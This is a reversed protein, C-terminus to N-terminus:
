IVEGVQGRRIKFTENFKHTEVIEDVTQQINDQCTPLVGLFELRNM